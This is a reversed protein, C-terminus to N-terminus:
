KVVSLLAIIAGWLFLLVGSVKTIRRINANSLVRRLRVALFIKGFDVLIFTLFTIGFHLMMDAPQYSFTEGVIVVVSLWFILVGPNAANLAFGKIALASSTQASLAETKRAVSQQKLFLYVGYAMLALGGVWQIWMNARLWPEISSSFLYAVYVALIDSLLIGLELFLAARIGRTLSTDILAFFVPGLLFPVILGLLIGHVAISM